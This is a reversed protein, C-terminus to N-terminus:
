SYEVDSYGHYILMNTLIHIILAGKTVYVIGDFNNLQNYLSPVIM